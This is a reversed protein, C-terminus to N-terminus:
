SVSQSVLNVLNVVKVVKVLKVFTVFVCVSWRVLKCVFLCVFLSNLDISWARRMDSRVGSCLSHAMGSYQNYKPELGARSQLFEPVSSCFFYFQATHSFKDSSPTSFSGDGKQVFLCVFLCVFESM